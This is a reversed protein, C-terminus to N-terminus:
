IHILSLMIVVVRAMGFGLTKLENAYFSYGAEGFEDKHKSLDGLTGNVITLNLYPHDKDKYLSQGFM